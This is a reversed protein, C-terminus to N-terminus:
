KSGELVKYVLSSAVIRSKIAQQDAEDTMQISVAAHNEVPHIQGYGYIGKLFAYGKEPDRPQFFTEHAFRDIQEPTVGTHFVVVLSYTGSKLVEQQDRTMTAVCRWQGNQRVWVDMSNFEKRIAESSSLRYKGTASLHALVLASNEYFRVLEVERRFVSYTVDANVSALLESKRLSESEYLLYDESLLTNLTKVDGKVMAEDWTRTLNILEQEAKTSSQAHTQNIQALASPAAAGILLILLYLTKMKRRRMDKDM